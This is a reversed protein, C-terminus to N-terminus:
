RLPTAPGITIKRWHAPSPLKAGVLTQQYLRIISKPGGAPLPQTVTQTVTGEILKGFVRQNNVYIELRWARNEEASVDLKMVKGGRLDVTSSLVVGRVEDRPWTVLTENDLYTIGRIGALGGGGGGCGARELRWRPDWYRTLEALSFFDPAVEPPALPQRAINMIRPAIGSIREDVPPDFTLPGMRSGAVRNQLKEVLAPPLGKMGHLAGVVAAASAANCDADTFDAAGMALNVTKLFDGEGFYVSMAVLAGNAVANNTAPYEIHWRDEVANAIERPYRGARAMSLAQDLAQRYPSRPDIYGAAKEVIVKPDTESYALSVMAAVFVGGDVAEAFGNIRGYYRALRAALAPNGPALMGYIDSSFQPGITFWLRNYRPHGTDPPQVGRQMLLRAQESSGWSGANDERWQAGLQQITLRPGYKEFARLAVIEYYYDDDVPAPGRFTAPLDNVWTVSAPKHEFPFGMNAGLIQATFAARTRDEVSQASLSCSLFLLLAARM